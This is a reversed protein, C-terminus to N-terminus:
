ARDSGSTGLVPIRAGVPNLGNALRLRLLSSRSRSVTTGSIALGSTGPRVVFLHWKRGASAASAM